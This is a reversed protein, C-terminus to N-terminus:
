TSEEKANGLFNSKCYEMFLDRSNVLLEAHSIEITRNNEEIKVKWTIEGTTQNESCSLIKIIKKNNDNYNSRLHIKTYPDLKPNETNISYLLDGEMMQIHKLNPAEDSKSANQSAKGKKRTNKPRRGIGKYLSSSPAQENSSSFYESMKQSLKNINVISHEPYWDWDIRSGFFGEEDKKVGAYLEKIGNKERSASIAVAHINKNM